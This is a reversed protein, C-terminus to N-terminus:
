QIDRIKPMELPFMYITNVCISVCIYGIRSSRRFSQVPRGNYIFASNFKVRDPVMNSNRRLPVIYHMGIRKMDKIVNESINLLDSEELIFEM